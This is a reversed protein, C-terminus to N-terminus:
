KLMMHNLIEIIGLQILMLKLKVQLKFKINHYKQHALKPHRQTGHDLFDVNSYKLVYFHKPCIFKGYLKNILIRKRESIECFTDSFFLESFIENQEYILKYLSDQKNFIRKKIIKDFLESIKELNEVISKVEANYEHSIRSIFPM